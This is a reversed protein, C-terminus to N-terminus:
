YIRSFGKGETTINFLWCLFQVLIMQRLRKMLDEDDEKDTKDRSSNCFPCKDDNGTIYSSHICGGCISKGCCPHYVEMVKKALGENAEAYDNIPV